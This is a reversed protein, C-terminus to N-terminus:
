GRARPVRPPADPGYRRHWETSAAERAAAERRLRAAERLTLSVTSVVMPERDRRLRLLVERAVATNEALSLRVAASRDIALRHACDLPLDRSAAAVARIERHRDRSAAAIVEVPVDAHELIEIRVRMPMSRDLAAAWLAPSDDSSDYLWRVVGVDDIREPVIADPSVGIRFTSSMESLDGPWVLRDAVSELLARRSASLTDLHDRLCNRALRRIQRDDDGLLRWALDGTVAAHHLLGRSGYPTLPATIAELVATTAADNNALASRVGADRDDVLRMLVSEHDCLLAVRRRILTSRDKTLVEFVEVSDAPHMVLYERVRVERCRTAILLASVPADDNRAVQLVVRPDPDAALGDLVDAPGPRRAIRARVAHHRDTALFRILDDSLSAHQAIRTRVSTARDGALRGLDDESLMRDAVAVRVPEADDTVFRRYIHQPCAPNAALVSRVWYSRDFSLHDMTEVPTHVSRAAHVRIERVPDLGLSAFVVPDDGDNTVYRMAIRDRDRPACRDLAVIIQGTTAGPSMARRLLEEPDTLADLISATNISGTNISGTNIMETTDAVANM